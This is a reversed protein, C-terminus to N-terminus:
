LGQVLDIFIFVKAVEVEKGVNKTQEEVVVPPEESALPGVQTKEAACTEDHLALDLEDDSENM